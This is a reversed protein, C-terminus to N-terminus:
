RQESCLSEEEKGVRAFVKELLFTEESHGNALFPFSKM